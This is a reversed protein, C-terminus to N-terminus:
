RKATGCRLQAIYHKKKLPTLDALTNFTPEFETRQSADIGSFRTGHGGNLREASICCLKLTVSVDPEPCTEFIFDRVDVVREFHNQAEEEKQKLVDNQITNLLNM